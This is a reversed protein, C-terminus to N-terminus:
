LLGVGGTQTSMMQPNLVVTSLFPLPLFPHVGTKELQSVGKAKSIYLTDGPRPTMGGTNRSM